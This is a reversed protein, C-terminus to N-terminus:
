SSSYRLKNVIVRTKETLAEKLKDLQTLDVFDTDINATKKMQRFLRGTGGYLDDMSLIRDGTNLMAVMNTTAALGSSFVLGSFIIEFDHMSVIASECYIHTCNWSCTFRGHKGKDLAALTEELIQRTPNGSRTYEFGQLLNWLIIIKM